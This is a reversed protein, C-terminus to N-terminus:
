SGLGIKKQCRLNSRGCFDQGTNSYFIYVHLELKTSHTQKRDSGNHSLEDQPAEIIIPRKKRPTLEEHYVYM